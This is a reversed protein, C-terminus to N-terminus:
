TFQGHEVHGKPNVTSYFRLVYLCDGHMAGSWVEKVALFNINNKKNRLSFMNHYETFAGWQPKYHSGIHHTKM